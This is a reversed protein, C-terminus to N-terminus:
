LNFAMPITVKSWDWCGGQLLRVFQYPVTNNSTHCRSTVLLISSMTAQHWPCSSNISSVMKVVSVAQHWFCLVAAKKKM